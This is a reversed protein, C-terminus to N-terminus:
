NLGIVLSNLHDNGSAIVKVIHLEYQDFSKSFYCRPNFIEGLVFLSSHWENFQKRLAEPSPDDCQQWETSWIDKPLLRARLIYPAVLGIPDFFSSVFSLVTRQDGTLDVLSLLLTMEM